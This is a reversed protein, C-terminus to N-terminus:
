EALRRQAADFFIKEQEIGIFKRQVGKGKCAEGTSGVGMFGDFVTDGGNSSIEILHRLLSVPKQTPHLTHGKADKLRENGSCVPISIHNQMENEDGWHFTHGGQDSRTFFLIYEVSNKYTTHIIQQAPNPKYWVIVTKACLGAEELAKWLFSCYKPSTFVYGSGHGRLIRKWEKAWIDFLAIFQEDTLKDWEGFDQSIPTHEKLGTFERDSAVNYPPDTVILDISSDGIDKVKEYFDGHILHVSNKREWEDRIAQIFKDLKPHLGFCSKNKEDKSKAWEADYAGSYVEDHLQTTYIEGLDGLQASAHTYM